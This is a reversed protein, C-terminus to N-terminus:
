LSRAMFEPVMAVEEADIAIDLASSDYGRKYDGLEVRAPYAHGDPTRVFVAGEHQAMAFLATKTDDSGENPHQMSLKCSRDKGAAAYLTKSGDMHVRTESRDGWSDSAEVNYPLELHGHEGGDYWDFLVANSANSYEAEAFEVSGDATRTAVTYVGSGGWRSSTPPVEDVVTDGFEVGEAILYSRSPTVRYVDFVDTGAADSPASATISAFGDAMAVSPACPAAKHAYDVTFPIEVEESEMGTRVSRVKAFLSYDGGDLLAGIASFELTESAQEGNDSMTGAAATWVTEGDAQTIDRDPMSAGIGHSDIRASALVSGGEDTAVSFELPQSTLKVGYAADSDATLNTTVTCSPADAIGVTRNDSAVTFRGATVEVHLAISGGDARSEISSWPVAVSSQSGIGSALTSGNSDVICWAEQAAGSHSWSLALDAGRQIFEPVSLSVDSPAEAPKVSPTGAYAGYTDIGDDTQLYRRARVFVEEGETLGAIYLTASKAYASAESAKPNDKWDTIFTSPSETSQWARENTSWSIENTNSDNDNWGIVVRATTADEATLSCIGIDDSVKAPDEYTLTCKWPQSYSYYGAHSTRVRYWTYTGPTSLANIYADHFGSCTGDDVAGDVDEWDDRANADAKKASYPVDVVRQLQVEDVPHKYGGGTGEEKDARYVPIIVNGTDVTLNSGNGSLRPHNKEDQNVAYVSPHSIRYIRETTVSNGWPGQNTVRVVCRIIQNYGLIAAKGFDHKFTGSAATTPSVTQSGKQYGDWFMQFKTRTRWHKASTPNKPVNANWNATVEGTDPDFSLSLSPQYPQEATWTAEANESSGDRNVGHVKVTVSRLDFKGLPHYASTDITYVYSKAAAGLTIPVKRVNKKNDSGIRVIELVGEISSYKYDGETANKLLTWEAKFTAGNRTLKIYQPKSKPPHKTAM